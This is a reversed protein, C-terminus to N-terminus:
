LQPALASPQSFHIDRVSYMPLTQIETILDVDTAGFSVPSMLKHVLRSFATVNGGEDPEAGGKTEGCFIMIAGARFNEMKDIGLDRIKACDFGPPVLPSVYGSNVRVKAKPQAPAHGVVPRAGFGVLALFAGGLVVFLGILVRINFFASQSASKKKM